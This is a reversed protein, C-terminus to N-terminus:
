QCIGQVATLLEPLDKKDAKSLAEIGFRELIEKLDAKSKAYNTTDLGKRFDRM